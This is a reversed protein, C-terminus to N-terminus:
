AYELARSLFISIKIAFPPWQGAGSVQESRIIIAVWQEFYHKRGQYSCLLDSLCCSYISSTRSAWKWAHRSSPIEEHWGGSAMEMKGPGQEDLMQWTM